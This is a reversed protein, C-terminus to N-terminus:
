GAAAPSKRLGTLEESRDWLAAALADDAAQPTPVVARRGHYFLGPAWDAGPTGDLLRTLRRAAREPTILALHRLPTGYVFRWDSTTDAAFNSAVNGPHFAVPWIGGAGRRRQLERTFLINALKSTGYVRKADWNREAQLDDLDLRGLRAATSATTVVVGEGATLLDGLLATLLFPALHNVQLTMELGDATVRRRPQIAGANNVLVDIRPLREHLQEALARVQALEAFDATFQEAEIPEAVTRLKQESRGVLVLRHEPRALARAGAAGVGDSAGTLVIIREPM